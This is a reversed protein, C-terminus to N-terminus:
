RKRKGLSGILAALDLREPNALHIKVKVGQANELEIMCPPVAAPLSTLEVFTAAKTSPRGGGYGSGNSSSESVTGKATAKLSGAELRRKLHNFDLHLYASTPNVGHERAAEVALAWLANPIRAGHQRTRRWRDFRRRARELTGSPEQSGATIM